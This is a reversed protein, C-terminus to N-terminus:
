NTVRVSNSRYTDLQHATGEHVRIRKDWLSAARSHRRFFFSYTFHRSFRTATSSFWFLVRMSSSFARLSKYQWLDSYFVGAPPKVPSGWCKHVSVWCLAMCRSAGEEKRSKQKRKLFQQFIHSRSEGPIFFCFLLGMGSQYISVKDWKPLKFGGDWKLLKFGVVLKGGNFPHPPAWLSRPPSQLKFLTQTALHCLLSVLQERWPCWRLSANWDSTGPSGPCCWWCHPFQGCAGGIIIIISSKEKKKGM